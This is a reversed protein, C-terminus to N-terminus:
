LEVAVVVVVTQPRPAEVLGKVLLVVGVQLVPIREEVVQVALQDLRTILPVRAEV